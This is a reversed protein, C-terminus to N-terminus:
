ASGNSGSRHNTKPTCCGSTRGTIACQRICSSRSVSLQREDSDNKRRLEQEARIWDDFESGHGGNRHLFKHYARLRIDAESPESSMSVATTNGNAAPAAVTAPPPADLFTESPEIDSAAASPTDDASAPAPKPRAPAKARTARGPKAAAADSSKRRSPRKAMASVEFLSDSAQYFWLTEFGGPSAFIDLSKLDGHL